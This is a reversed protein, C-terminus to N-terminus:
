TSTLSNSSIISSSCCWSCNLAISNRVFYIRHAATSLAESSGSLWLANSRIVLSSDSCPERHFAHIIIPKKNARVPRPVFWPARRHHPVMTKSSLLGRVDSAGFQHGDRIPMIIPITGCRYCSGFSRTRADHQKSRKSSCQLFVITWKFIYTSGFLASALVYYM